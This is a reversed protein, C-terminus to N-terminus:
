IVFVYCSTAEDIDYWGTGYTGTEDRFAIVEETPGEVFYEDIEELSASGFTLGLVEAFEKLKDM